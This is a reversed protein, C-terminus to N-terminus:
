QMLKESNKIYVFVQAYSFFEWSFLLHIRLSHPYISKDQFIPFNFCKKRKPKHIAIREAWSLLFESKASEYAGMETVEKFMKDQKLVLMEVMVFIVVLCSESNLCGQFIFVEKFCHSEKSFELHNHILLIQSPHWQFCCECIEKVKWAGNTFLEKLALSRTVRLQM